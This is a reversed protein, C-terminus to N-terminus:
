TRHGRRRRTRRLYDFLGAFCEAVLPPVANGIQIFQDCRSGLFVYSDPFGQIRAAERPTIGRDDSPHIYGNADKHLHSVITRCPEDPKLRFYKDHFNDSSYRMLRRGGRELAALADDGPRLLSFLQLDLPNHRRAEHQFVLTKRGDTAAVAQVLSGEGARLSPLGDLCDGLTPPHEVGNRDLMWQRVDRLELAGRVGVVFLRHRVQPLGLRAANLGFSQVGYGLGELGRELRRLINTRGAGASRMDPVNEIFVASPRLERVAALLARYLHNRPDDTPSPRDVLHPKTRYGVKSFGQCPLGAALVDVKAGRGILAALRGKPRVLREIDACVVAEPRVTPHNLRFTRCASPDSDVALAVKYGRRTFGLSLGGAGAFLDVLVPGRTKRSAARLTRERWFGCFKKLECRECEPNRSHCVAQGHAVLNVHLPGRLRPPIANRLRRQVVRHELGDLSGVLPSLVALRSLVTITHADVPFVRRDLAYLMVCQAGKLDIGPLSTLYSLVEDDPQQRLASLDVAGFDALLRAVIGVIARSKNSVFGGPTLLTPLREGATLLDEWRPFERRLDELIRRATPIRTRWCLVIYILEAVPDRLNGLGPTGYLADLATTVIALRTIVEDVLARAPARDVPTRVGPFLSPDRLLLRIVEDRWNSTSKGYRVRDHFLHFEDGDDELRLVAPELVPPEFNGLATERLATGTATM